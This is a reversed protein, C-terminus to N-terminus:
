NKERTRILIDSKTPNINQTTLYEAKGDTYLQAVVSDDSWFSDYESAIITEFDNVDVLYNTQWKSVDIVYGAGTGGKDKGGQAPDYNRVYRSVIPGPTGFCDTGYSGFDVDPVAEIILPKFTEFDYLNFTYNPAFGDYIEDIVPDERGINKYVPIVWGSFESEPDIGGNAKDYGYLYYPYGLWDYGSVFVKSENNADVLYKVGNIELQKFLPGTLAYHSNISNECQGMVYPFQFAEGKAIKELEAKIITSDFYEFPDELHVSPELTEVDEIPSSISNNDISDENILWREKMELESYVKKVSIINHLNEADLTYDCGDLALFVYVDKGDIHLLPGCSIYNGVLVHNDSVDLLYHVGNKSATRVEYNGMRHPKSITDFEKPMNQFQFLICNSDKEEYVIQTEITDEKDVPSESINDIVLEQNKDDEVPEGSKAIDTNHGIAYKLGIILGIACLSASIPMLYRGWKKNFIERKNLKIRAISYSSTLIQETKRYKALLNKLKRKEFDLDITELDNNIIEKIKLIDNISSLVVTRLKQRRIEFDESKLTGNKISECFEEYIQFFKAAREEIIKIMKNIHIKLKNTTEKYSNILDEFKITKEQESDKKKNEAQKANKYRKYFEIYSERKKSDTLTEYAQNIKKFKEESNPNQDPHYKKALKIYAKRIDKKSTNEDVGLIEFYDDFKGPQEWEEKPM